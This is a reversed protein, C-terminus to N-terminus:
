SCRVMAAHVGIKKEWCREKRYMKRSCFLAECVGIPFFDIWCYVVLDGNKMYQFRLREADSRIASDCKACCCDSSVHVCPFYPLFCFLVVVLNEELNALAWM